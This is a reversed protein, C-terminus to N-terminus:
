FPLKLMWVTGAYRGPPASPPVYLSFEIREREGPHLIRNPRDIKMLEAIPGTAFAIIRRDSNKPCFRCATNVTLNIFRSAGHNAPLEGFDLSDAAPNVAVGGDAGVVVVEARYRDMTWLQIALVWVLLGIICVLLLKGTTLRKRPKTPLPAAKSIEIKKESPVAM